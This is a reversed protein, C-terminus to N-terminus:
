KLIWSVLTLWCLYINMYVGLKVVELPDETDTPLVLADRNVPKTLIDDGKRDFETCDDPCDLPTSTQIRIIMM